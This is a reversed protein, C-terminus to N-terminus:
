FCTGLIIYLSLFVPPFYLFPGMTLLKFWDDVPFSIGTELWFTSRVRPFVWACAVLLLGNFFFYIGNMNLEIEDELRSSSYPLLECHEM